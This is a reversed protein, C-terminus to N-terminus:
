AVEELISIEGSLMNPRFPMIQIRKSQASPESPIGLDDVTIARVVIHRGTLVGVAHVTLGGVDGIPGCFLWNVSNLHDLGDEIICNQWSVDFANAADTQVQTDSTGGELIRDKYDPAQGWGLSPAVLFVLGILWPLYRM